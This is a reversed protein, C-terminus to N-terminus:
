KTKENRLIEFLAIAYGIFLTIYKINEDPISHGLQTAFWVIGAVTSKQLLRDIFNLNYNTLDTNTTKATTIEVTKVEEVVEEIKNKNKLFGLLNLKM